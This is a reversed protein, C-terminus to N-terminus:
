KSTNALPVTFTFTAGKGEISDAQISGEHAEVIKRAIALGLGTGGGTRAKDVKYFREFIRPLDEAPIGIGNDAIRFRVYDGEPEASIDITGNPKSFKIANHILNILVQEISREDGFAQVPAPPINIKLHLGARNAQARLRGAAHEIVTEINFPKKVLPAEGSEIRSLESLEEVMQALKDVEINIKFLFDKAVAPDDLAGERLTESLAKLSSLPTRLEHSINSVFDRRITELRRIETLDQLLILCGSEASLPTAIIGLVLNTPKTKIFGTQQSKSDLCRQVIDNLEYDLVTEIFTHGSVKDNPISLMRIASQNAMSVKKDQDIVMIGDNMTALIVELRDREETILTVLERLRYMMQNFARALTGVEDRSSVRIEQDLKGDAIQGATKTLRKLPTITTNSIQLALLIAIVVAILSGIAITRYIKGLEIEIDNLPVSVRAVGVAQGEIVIPVASYLMNYGLTTSYRINSGEGRSLAELVEPRNAHNEMSSPDEESDGLVVGNSDIITIRADIQDGLSKALPDIDSITARPFFSTSLDSVLSAQKILQLELNDIYNTKTFQSLYASLGGICVIVLLVFFVAVRWRISSFM